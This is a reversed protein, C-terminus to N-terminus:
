YKRSMYFNDMGSLTGSFTQDAGQEIYRHAKPFQLKLLMEAKKTKIEVVYLYGWTVSWDTSSDEGTWESDKKIISAGSTMGAWRRIRTKEDDNDFPIAFHKKM